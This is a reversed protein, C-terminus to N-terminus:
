QYDQYLISHDTAIFDLTQIFDRQSELKRRTSTSLRGFSNLREMETKYKLEKAKLIRSPMLHEEMESTSLAEEKSNSSNGGNAM